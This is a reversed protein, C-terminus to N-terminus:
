GSRGLPYWVVCNSAGITPAPSISIVNASPEVLAIRIWWAWRSSSAPFDNCSPSKSCPMDPMSKFRAPVGSISITESGSILLESSATAKAFFSCERTMANPIQSPSIDCPEIRKSTFMETRCLPSSFSPVRVSVLFRFEKLNISSAIARSTSRWISTNSSPPLMRWSVRKYLASVLVARAM